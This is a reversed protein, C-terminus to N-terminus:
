TNTRINIISLLGFRHVLRRFFRFINHTRKVARCEIGYVYVRRSSTLCMYMCVSWRERMWLYNPYRVQVSLFLSLLSFFTCFICLMSKSIFSVEKKQTHMEAGEDKYWIASDADSVLNSQCNHAPYNSPIWITKMANQISINLKISIISDTGFKSMNVDWVNTNASRFHLM